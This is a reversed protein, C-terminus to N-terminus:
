SGPVWLKGGGTKPEAASEPTWLGGSSADPEDKGVISPGVDIKYAAILQQLYDEFQPLKPGYYSRLRSILGPLEPDKPDEMRLSLERMDWRFVEEFGEEKKARSVDRGASLMELAREVEGRDRCLDTMTQYIRVMDVDAPPRELAEGLVKYLMQRHRLILARNLILGLQKEDTEALPVRRLQLTSFSNLSESAAARRELAPLGLATRFEDLDLEYRARDCFADLVHIAGVVRARMSEDGAAVAPTKGDLAHLPSDKWDEFVVKRYRHHELERQKRVPMEEPFAPTWYLAALDAPWGEGSDVAEGDANLPLDADGLLQAASDFGTGSLGSLIVIGAGNDSRDYVAVQAIVRPTDELAVQGADDTAPIPQDLVEFMADPLDDREEQPPQPLRRVRDVDDLVTLLRSVGECQFRQSRIPLLREEDSLEFLQALAEYEAAVEFDSEEGAARHLLEAAKSEDGTWAHALAANYALAANVSEGLLQEYRDASKGFVGFSALVYAKHAQDAQEGSLDPVPEILNHSGRLLYPVDSNGDFELLRVFIDQRHEPPAFRMALVLHQRSAPFKRMAFFEASIGLALSSILDAHSEVCRHFARWISNRASDYGEAAFNTVAHLAVVTLNKSDVRILREMIEFAQQPDGENLLISARTAQNWITDPNSEALKELIRLAARPQNSEQLKAVKGMEEAIGACCFKMKRDTCLPCPQYVDYAM